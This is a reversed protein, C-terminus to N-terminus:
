YLVYRYDPLKNMLANVWSIDGSSLIFNLIQAAYSWGEVAKTSKEILQHVLTDNSAGYTYNLAMLITNQERIKYTIETLASMVFERNQFLPANRPFDFQKRSMDKLMNVAHKGMRSPDGMPNINKGTYRPTRKNNNKAM